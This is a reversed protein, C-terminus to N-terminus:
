AEVREEFAWAGAERIGASASEVFERSSALMQRLERAGPSQEMQLVSYQEAKAFPRTKKSERVISDVNLGGYERVAEMVVQLEGANLDNRTLEWTEMVRLAQM